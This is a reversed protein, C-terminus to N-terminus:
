TAWEGQTGLKMGWAERQWDKAGPLISFRKPRIVFLGRPDLMTGGSCIGERWIIKLITGLKNNYGRLKNIERGGGLGGGCIEGGLNRKKERESRSFSVRGSGM